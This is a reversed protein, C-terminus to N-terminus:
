DNVMGKDRLFEIAQKAAAPGMHSHRSLEVHVGGCYDIEQIARMIPPFEMDGEGFMLHEHVGARMDEIHLNALDDAWRHLYDAVPIEGQCHLHGVDITLKLRPHGLRGKLQAFRDMTDIFMGPEPEFAIDVGCLDAHELVAALGDILRELSTAEDEATRLVGSWLSVCDANLEAGIEVSRRLFEVRRARDPANPTMLTPEHKERPDLLFRAGTEIVCRMQASELRRRVAAIQTQLGPDFPNLAAHDLTIAVGGYGLEALLEIAEELRHHALGNTNYSLYLSKPESSM